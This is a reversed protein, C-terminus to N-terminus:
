DGVQVIVDDYKAALAVLKAKLATLAAGSVGFLATLQPDTLGLSNVFKGLRVLDWGSADKFRRRLEARFQNVTSHVFVPSLQDMARQVNDDVEASALQAEIKAVRAALATNVNAGAEAMYNVFHPVGVHDTHRERVSRRGDKQVVNEVIVSNVISM